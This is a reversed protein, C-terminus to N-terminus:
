YFCQLVIALYSSVSLYAMVKKLVRIKQVIFKTVQAVHYHWSLKNDILLGLHKAANTNVIM